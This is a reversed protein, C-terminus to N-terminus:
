RGSRRLRERNRLTAVVPSTSVLGGAPMVTSRDATLDTTSPGVSNPAENEAQPTKAVQELARRARRVFRIVRWAVYSILALAGVIATLLPWPIYAISIQQRATKAESSVTATANGIQVFPAPTVRAVITFSGGPLISEPVVFPVKSNAGIVSVMTLSARPHLITNGSNHLPLSVSLVGGTEKWSMVGQELSTVVTGAVTLYIRVGQRMVVDMRVSTNGGSSSVAGQVPASQIILGGVYEGPQTGIPVSVRFPVRLETNAPVSIHDADLSVWGGVGTHPESRSRLAFAGQATNTGDVAYNLLTVDAHTHNSVIATATLAEGPLLSLHFFDSENSPRIGLTGNDVAVAPEAFVSALVPTFILVALVTALTARRARSRRWPLFPNM